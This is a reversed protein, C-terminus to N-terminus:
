QAQVQFTDASIRDFPMSFWGPGGNIWVTLPSDEPHGNRAEFFWWFIHQDDAIDAFGSYSKVNQDLECTGDPVQKYRVPVGAYGITEILDNPPAVFQAYSIAGGLLLVRLLLLM